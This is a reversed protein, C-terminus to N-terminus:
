AVKVIRAVAVSRFGGGVELFHLIRMDEAGDSDDVEWKSPTIAPPHNTKSKASVTATDRRGSLSNIWTVESGNILKLIAENSLHSVLGSWNRRTGMAQQERVAAYTEQQSYTDAGRQEADAIHRKAEDAIWRDNPEELAEWDEEDAIPPVEDEDETHAAGPMSNPTPPVTPPVDTSTPPVAADSHAASPETPPVADAETPPVAPHAASHASRTPPLGSAVVEEATLEGTILGRLVDKKIVKADFLFQEKGDPDVPYYVQLKRGQSDLLTGFAMTKHCGREPGATWGNEAAFESIADVMEIAELQDETYKLKTTVRGGVAATERSTPQDFPCSPLSSMECPQIRAPQDASRQGIRSYRSIPQSAPRSTSSSNEPAPRPTRGTPASGDLGTARATTADPRTDRRTRRTAPGRPSRTRSNTRTARYVRAPHSARRDSAGPPDRDSATRRQAIARPDRRVGNRRRASHAIDM